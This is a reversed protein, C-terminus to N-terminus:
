LAADIAGEDRLMTCLRLHERCVVVEAHTHYFSLNASGLKGVKEKLKRHRSGNFVM